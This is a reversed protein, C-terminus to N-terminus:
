GWVAGGVTAALALPGSGGWRVEGVRATRLGGHVRVGLELGLGAISGTFLTGGRWLGGSGGCLTVPLGVGTARLVRRALPLPACTGVVGGFLRQVLALWAIRGLGAKINGVTDGAPPAEPALRGKIIGSGLFLFLLAHQRWGDALKRVRDAVLRVRWRGPPGHPDISISNKIQEM